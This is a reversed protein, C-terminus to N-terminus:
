ARGYRARVNPVLYSEFAGAWEYEPRWGWETRALSDAVDSRMRPETRRIVHELRDRRYYFSCMTRAPMYPDTSLHRAIGPERQEQYPKSYVLETHYGGTDQTDLLSKGAVRQVLQAAQGGRRELRTGDGLHILCDGCSERLLPSPRM